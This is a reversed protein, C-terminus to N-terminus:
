SGRYTIGCDSTFSKTCGSRVRAEVKVLERLCLKQQSTKQTQQTVNKVSKETAKM